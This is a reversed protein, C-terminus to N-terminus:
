RFKELRGIDVLWDRFAKVTKSEGHVFLHGEQTFFMNQLWTDICRLNVQSAMRQIRAPLDSNKSCTIQYSFGSYVVRPSRAQKKKKRKKAVVVEYTGLFRNWSARVRNTRVKKIIGAKKALHESILKRILVLNKKPNRKPWRMKFDNVVSNMDKIDISYYQKM